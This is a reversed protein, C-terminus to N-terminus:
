APKRCTIWSLTLMQMTPSSRCGTPMRAPLTNPRATLTSNSGMQRLLPAAALQSLSRQHLPPHCLNRRPLRAVLLLLRPSQHHRRRPLKFINPSDDRGCLSATYQEGPQCQSYWENFLVCSWGSVCSTEGTYSRGGCQGWPGVQAAVAGIASLLAVSPLPHMIGLVSFTIQSNKSLSFATSNSLPKKSPM